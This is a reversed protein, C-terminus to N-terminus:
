PASAGRTSAALPTDVHTGAGLELVDGLGEEVLEDAHSLVGRPAPIVRGGSIEIVYFSEEGNQLRRKAARKSERPVQAHLSPTARPRLTTGNVRHRDFYTGNRLMGCAITPPWVARSLCVRARLRTVPAVGCLCRLANYDRRRVADSGEALLTALVGTGIGPLSLLIAAAPPAKSLWPEAGASSLLWNAMESLGAGGDEFEREGVVKGDVDLM